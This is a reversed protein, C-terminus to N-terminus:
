VIETSSSAAAKATTTSVREAATGEAGTAPSGLEDSAVGEATTTAAAVGEVWVGTLGAEGARRRRDKGLRAVGSIECHRDGVSKRSFVGPFSSSM